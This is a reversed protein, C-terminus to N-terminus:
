EVGKQARIAGIAKHAEIAVNCIRRGLLWQPWSIDAFSTKCHMEVWMTKAVDYIRELEVVNREEIEIALWGELVFVKEEDNPESPEQIM